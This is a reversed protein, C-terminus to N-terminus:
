LLSDLAAMQGLELDTPLHRIFHLWEHTSWDFQQLQRNNIFAQIASEVIDFKDSEFQVVNSPIGPGFIWADIDVDEDITNLLKADLYKIFESTAITQFKHDEFYQTVSVIM